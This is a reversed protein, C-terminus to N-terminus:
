PRMRNVFLTEKPMLGKKDQAVIHTRLGDREITQTRLVETNGQPLRIATAGLRLRNTMGEMRRDSRDRRM